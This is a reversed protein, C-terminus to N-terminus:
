PERSLLAPKLAWAQKRALEMLAPARFGPPFIVWGWLKPDDEAVHKLAALTAPKVEITKPLDKGDLHLPALQALTRLYGEPSVPESGLWIVGPMRGHKRLYARVDATTRLFQNA